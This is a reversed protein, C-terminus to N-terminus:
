RDIEEKYVEGYINFYPKHFIAELLDWTWVYNHPYVIAQRVIGFTMLIILLVMCCQAM